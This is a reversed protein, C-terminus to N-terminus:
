FVCWAILKLSPMYRCPSAGLCWLNNGYNLHEADKLLDRFLWYRILGGWHIRPFWSLALIIKQAQPHILPGLQDNPVSRSWQKNWQGPFPLVVMRKLDEQGTMRAVPFLHSSLTGPQLEKGTGFRTETRESILPKGNRSFCDGTLRHALLSPTPGAWGSSLRDSALSASTGLDETIQWLFDTEWTRQRQIRSEM